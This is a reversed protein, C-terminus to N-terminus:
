KSKTSGSTKGGATPKPPMMIKNMTAVDDSKLGAANEASALGVPGLSGALAITPTSGKAQLLAMSHQFRANEVNMDANARFAEVLSTQHVEIASKDQDAKTQIAAAQQDAAIKQQAIAQAGQQQGQQMAANEAMKQTMQAAEWAKYNTRLTETAANSRFATTNDLYFELVPAPVNAAMLKVFEQLHEEKASETKAMGSGGAVIVRCQGDELAQLDVLATAAVAPGQLAKAPIAEDSLGLFRGFKTGYQAYLAIRWEDVEAKGRWINDIVLKLREKDAELRVEFDHGSSPPNVTDSNFDRVGAINEMTQTLNAKYALWFESIAPPSMWEPKQGGVQEGNYSINKGYHAGLLDDPAVESNTPNFLVPCFWELWGNMKMALRNLSLQPPILPKVMNLGWVSGTKQGFKFEVFPYKDKKKYPWPGGYLFFDGSQVWFRGEPYLESLGPREYVAIVEACNNDQQNQRTYDGAIYELRQELNGFTSDTCTADVTVGWREQIYEVPLIVREVFYAGGHIGQGTLIANPDPYCDLWLNVTHAVDGIQAHHYEVSGDGQPIGVDAWAKPNWECKVYVSTSIGMALVVDDLLRDWGTARDCHATVASGVESARRDKDSDTMPACWADPKTALARARYRDVMVQVYNEPREIFRDREKQNGKDFNVWSGEGGSGDGLEFMRRHNGLYFGVGNLADANVRRRGMRSDQLRKKGLQILQQKDGIAPEDGPNKYEVRHPESDFNTLDILKKAGVTLEHLGNAMGNRAKEIINSPM